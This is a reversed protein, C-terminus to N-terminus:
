FEQYGMKLAAVPPVYRRATEVDLKLGILRFDESIVQLVFSGRMILRHSSGM